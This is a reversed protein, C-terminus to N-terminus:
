LQNNYLIRLVNILLMNYRCQHGRLIKATVTLSRSTSKNWGRTGVIIKALTVVPVQDPRRSKRSVSALFLKGDLGRNKSCLSYQLSRVCYRRVWVM